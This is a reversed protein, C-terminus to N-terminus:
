GDGVRLSAVTRRRPKTGEADRTVIVHYLSSASADKADARHHIGISEERDLASMAVLKAVTLSNQVEWGLTEDFTKDLVYHAWFDLIDCTERLREGHRVIGANRWMVSRLSNRIDPLDLATRMSPPMQNSAQRVSATEPVAEALKGATRGALRGFVMGELLSNSALRNAGHVGTSAAEGCCLLGKVSTSGDLGVEVGGVLYHATPRVPILDRQVDIEFDACLQAIRPFRDSFGRIHRVDLYVCNSRTEQLHRHIALSVVDRPALEADPHFDQMFRDGARDVLHGGEGRVAESILARGAGAVYLTTPHFQMMEMDRLSAGARFALALGDGTAVPPNTTERWLRGCGGTALITQKAWIIQQSHQKHFTVVG